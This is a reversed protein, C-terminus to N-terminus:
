LALVQNDMAEIRRVEEYHDATVAGGGAVPTPRRIVLEAFAPRNFAAFALEFASVLLGQDRERTFDPLLIPGTDTQFVGDRPNVNMTKVPHDIRVRYGADRYQLRAVLPRQAYTADIIRETSDLVEGDTERVRIEFGSFLDATLGVQREPQRGLSPPELMVETQNTIWSKLIMIESECAVPCFDANPHLWLDRDPGVIESKCAAGLVYRHTAGDAATLTCVSELQIRAANFRYPAPHSRTRVKKRDDDSTFTLFSRQFDPVRMSASVVGGARM